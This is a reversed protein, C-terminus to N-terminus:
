NAPGLQGWKGIAQKNNRKTSFGLQFYGILRDGGLGVGSDSFTITDKLESTRNNYKIIVNSDTNLYKLDYYEPKWNSAEYLAGERTIYYDDAKNIGKLINIANFKERVADISNCAIERVTSKVPYMYQYRQLTDMMMHEAGAALSKSFGQKSETINESLISM